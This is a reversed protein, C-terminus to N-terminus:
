ESVYAYFPACTGAEFGNYYIHAVIINTGASLMFDTAIGDVYLPDGTYLYNDTLQVAGEVEYKVEIKTFDLGFGSGIESLAVKLTLIDGPRAARKYYAIDNFLGTATAFNDNRYTIPTVPTVVFLDQYILVYHSFANTSVTYTDDSQDQDPLHTVSYSGPSTEHIAYIAFTRKYGQEPNPLDDPLTFVIEVPSSLQSLTEVMPQNIGDSVTKKVTIDFLDTTQTDEPLSGNLVQQQADPLTTVDEIILDLNYTKITGDALKKADEATMSEILDVKQADSVDAEQNATQNDVNVNIQPLELLKQHLDPRKEQNVSVGQEKLAEYDQKVELIDKVANDYEEQQEPTPTTPLIPVDPLADIKEELAASDMMSFVVSLTANKTPTVTIKNDTITLLTGDFTALAAQYGVDPRLEIEQPYNTELEITATNMETGGVWLTGNASNDITVTNTMPDVMDTNFMYRTYKNYSDVSGDIVLYMYLDLLYYDYNGIREDGDGNVTIVNGADGAEWLAPYFEDTRPGNSLSVVDRWYFKFFVYQDVTGQDGYELPHSVDIGVSHERNNGFQWSVPNEILVPTDTLVEGDIILYVSPDSLSYGKTLTLTNNVLESATPTLKSTLEVPTSGHVWAADFGAPVSASDISPLVFTSDAKWIGDAGEAWNIPFNYLRQYSGTIDEFALTYEYTLKQKDTNSSYESQHEDYYAKWDAQSPFIVPCSMSYFSGNNGNINDYQIYGQEKTRLVTVKKIKKSYFAQSDIVSVSAPIVVTVDVAFCDKFANYGISQLGSPLECLANPDGGATRIYQLNTCGNFISGYSADGLHLLGAPLTIGTIKEGFGNKGLATLSTCNTLDVECPMDCGLFAQSGIDTLLTAQSFDISTIRYNSAEEETSYTGFANKAIATTEAPIVVKIEARNSSGRDPFNTDMWTKSIGEITTGNMVLEAVPSPSGPAAFVSVPLMGMLLIMSLLIALTKKLKM